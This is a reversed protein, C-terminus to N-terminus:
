LNSLLGAGKIPIQIHVVDSQIFHHVKQFNWELPLAQDSIRTIRQKKSTAQKIINKIKSINSTEFKNIWKEKKSM